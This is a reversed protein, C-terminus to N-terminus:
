KTFAEFANFTSLRRTLNIQCSLLYQTGVTTSHSRSVLFVLADYSLDRTLLVITSTDSYSSVVKWEYNQNSESDYAVRNIERERNIIKVFKLVYRRNHDEPNHRRTTSVNVVM